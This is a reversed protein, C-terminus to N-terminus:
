CIMTASQNRIKERLRFHVHRPRSKEFVQQVFRPMRRAIAIERFRAPFEDIPQEVLVPQLQYVFRGFYSFAYEEFGGAPMMGARGGDLQACRVSRDAYEFCRKLGVKVASNAAMGRVTQFPVLAASLILNHRYLDSVKAM